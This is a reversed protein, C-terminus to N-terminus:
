KVPNNAYVRLSTGQELRAGDVPVGLKLDEAIKKKDISTTTKVVKYADAVKTEDDVIVAPPSKQLKFKVDNGVLEDTGLQEMAFKLNDKCKRQVSKAAASLRLFVSARTEYFQAISDMRDMVMSYGDIKAPLRIDQVALAAEIEPTLEGGSQIIMEEIASSTVVLERLSKEDTLNTVVQAKPM